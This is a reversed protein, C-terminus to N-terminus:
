KEQYIRTYNWYSRLIKKVYERTEDYPIQEIFEDFDHTQINKQWRQVSGIGGNYSAVALMNDGQLQERLASYYLNGLKINLEPNFLDRTAFEYANKEGIDHATAPMLQMLGIAGVASQAESNFYSEERLISMVLAVNNNYTRANNEVQKYYNLPYILRWRVDNKPPKIKLSDMANKALHMSESYKGQRYLAWSKIFEDNSIKRMMDYDKVLILNYLINGKQPYKYPYEIPKFNIDTDIVSNKFNQLIWFSRYAYYSDPYNNIINRYFIQFDPNYFYKQELKARWFMMKPINEANSFRIIYDEEIQKVRKYNKNKLSIEFLNELAYKAYKGNPYNAYLENLCQEKDSSSTLDCKRYLLYQKNPGKANKLLSSVTEYPNPTNKLTEEIATEYDKTKIESDFSSTGSIVLMTGDEVNNLAFDNM